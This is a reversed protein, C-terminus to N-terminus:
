SFKLAAWEQPNQVASEPEKRSRAIHGKEKRLTDQAANLYRWDMSWRVGKSKNPLGQHFLLNHFVVADGVGLEIPIADKLHPDLHSAVIEGDYHDGKEHPVVGLKHTGPIFQMCGNEVTAPVLPAWVNAMVLDEVLDNNAGDYFAATLGGDQHWPVRAKEWGPLKPRVTYNPYLRIEPGVIQEVLDLISPNFFIAFFGIRHLESRYQTPALDRNNEFLRVLRTEFSDDEFLDDIRGLGHLRRAELDVLGGIESCSADLAEVKFVDHLIVFGEERFRQFENSTSDHIPAATSQSPTNM